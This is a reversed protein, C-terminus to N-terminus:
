LIEKKLDESGCDLCRGNGLDVWWQERWELCKGCWYIAGEPEGDREAIGRLMELKAARIDGQQHTPRVGISGNAERPKPQLRIWRKGKGTERDLWLQVRDTLHGTVTAPIEEVEAVEGYYDFLAEEVIVRAGLGFGSLRSPCAFRLSTMLGPATRNFERVSEEVQLRIACVSSDFQCSECTLYRM